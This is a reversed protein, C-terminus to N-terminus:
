GLGIVFTVATTTSGGINLTAVRRAGDVQTDGATGTLQRAADVLMRVGTAGVPHGVGILGGSPNVPIRGDKELDGNEVAKWSEGPATIGFHDVAMYESMTFCDHTEIVDIEAVGAIGARGFADTVAQRVHPLVYRDDKSRQIKQDLSLGVTRHGWGQVRAVRSRLEPRRELYRDSVLVIGAGGDTVQSCDHRRLRGEVLPNATDDASFSADTLEWARTQALPNARANRFNLEGIARLHADDIGYRRDYEDTLASFMYPWMFTADQGEHGVWAAAGLHRAALDGSVTKELELGLVLAVDYRGSELDAMAALAAIGGSACAAEHRSAPVGWLEPLVTAPMGGLQGQGTFLQGFANGVHIVEIDGPELGAAELTRTAVQETLDAFDLGARAWNRAFDSQYGGLVSTGTTM